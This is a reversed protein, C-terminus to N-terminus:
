PRGPVFGDGSGSPLVPAPPIIPDFSPDDGVRPTPFTSIVRPGPESGAVRIPPLSAPLGAANSPIVIGGTGVGPPSSPMPASTDPRLTFNGPSVGPGTAPIPASVSPVSLPAPPITPMVIDRTQPPANMSEVRIPQSQAGPPTQMTWNGQQVPPQQQQQQMQQQAMMQQIQQIQQPTYQPTPQAIPTYNSQQPPLPVIGTPMQQSQPGGFSAPNSGFTPAGLTPNRGPNPNASVNLQPQGQPQNGMAAAPYQYNAPQNGLQSSMPNGGSAPLVFNNPTQQSPALPNATGGPNAQFGGGNAMLGGSNGAGALPSGAMGVNTGNPRPPPLQNIRTNSSPSTCGTLGLFVLVAISAVSRRMRSGSM